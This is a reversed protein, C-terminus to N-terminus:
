SKHHSAYFKELHFLSWFWRWRLLFVSVALAILLWIRAQTASSSQWQGLYHSGIAISHFVVLTLAPLALLHLHRWRKGLFKQARDFSTLAGPTILLLAMAGAAIALQHLPVLFSLSAFNWKLSHDLMHGTHAIALVYSGVGIARRYQLLSPFIGSLPRAVLALMLLFLSAHGTVDVMEDTRLLTLIGITLTVWGGLRFLQSRRSSSLRSAFTGIGVMMPMTGLGFALMTAAGLWLNQQEIAKIQAAYLFGCPILGWFLGLLAPTWWRNNLSVKTMAANLRQHLSGQLPHFVPLRPLFNPLIQALGFWILLLGTFIVVGQRLESGIGIFQSRDVIAGSIGGIAAGVLSYSIVRGCNLLFHFSFSSRWNTQRQQSLSFAVSLPGCMGACHGFSGFFGLLAILILDFTL